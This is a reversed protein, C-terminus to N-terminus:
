MGFRTEVRELCEDVVALFHSLQLPKTVYRTAGLTLAEQMRAPTADASVVVVPIDAVDDDSKLHRLLELGSIDPLHMDLLILDPRGQRAAQLGDLGLGAVELRVQPRQLLMGRMVEINTENDEVYLLRRAHYPALPAPADLEAAAEPAAAAPLVLTFTSGQGARSRVQLSGGMLEVLRRSIVLGIGTGEIGSAERGLRNYPQFLGRLQADTMGLGTDSVEIALRTDDLAHADIRVHGGERNYKVANSLLNTLVQKLRTSDARAAPLGPAIDEELIVGRQAAATEVLARCARLLAAVDLPAPVLQVAGSEIRALDLTENILELLHWGARQIQQVHELQRGDLEPQESLALLQAFGLMANLPTRLEHSMRSVFESKARSAAEARHLEREAQELRLHEGIDEIVAVMHTVRGEADDRLATAALRVDVLAGDGRQMRTQQRAVKTRGGILDRRLRRSEAHDPAPVMELVSRGRLWRGPRDLMECLRQNCEIFRGRADLFAVGVPASDLLTRLRAESQRLAQEVQHREEIEHRLEATSAQVALETRRTQGTVTLLLSGLMAASALGTLTLMWDGPRGRGAEDRAGVYLALPRGGFQLDRVLQLEGQPTVQRCDANGALQRRGAGPGADLLCWSLGAALGRAAEDLLPASSVTVFLVGRFAREREAADAPTGRYVAQYLVVGTEDGRAQTLRFANSAAPEGSTRTALVAARAADVSLVNVGLAPQNGELPEIRRLVVAARDAALAQGGDRQFVKFQPLGDLRAAAEFGAIDELAVQESYGLARIPWPQALWFRSAERLTRADPEGSARVAGGLAHLAYLPVRLRENLGAILREINRDVSLRARERDIRGIEALAAAILALMLLLPIGLTRRRSRWDELPRGIVTLALPAGILVGLADGVWWTAWNSLWRDGDLTGALRLATTAISPNVLCAVLAGLVGALAIDRPANLVVPLGITRRILWAGLAAQALAGSAIALPLLVLGVGSDGRVWGLGANVMFAGLLVGPLAARGWTLTAALAIGASPWLPSAYGPPGALLLAAAGIAAYALATLGTVAWPAPSDRETAQIDLM